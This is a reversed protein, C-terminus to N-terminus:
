PMEKILLKLDHTLEDMKDATTSLLRAHGQRDFVFVASSHNVEYNGDADPPQRSSVVRYERTLERLEAESGTLGIARSDFANVYQHLLQPTDRAPDLSVFAIRVDEALAGLRHMVVHLHTLALPCVDPCHTYGFYLLVIKGRLDAASVPAGQDGSLVFDLDPLHGSIDTLEWNQAPHSVGCGFLLLCAFLVLGFGGPASWPMRQFHSM